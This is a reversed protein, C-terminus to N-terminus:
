STQNLQSKSANSTERKMKQDPLGPHASICGCVQAQFRLMMELKTM